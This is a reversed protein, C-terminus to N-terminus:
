CCSASQGMPLSAAVAIGDGQDSIADLNIVLKIELGLQKELNKLMPAAARAGASTEEEDCVALFLISADGSYAEM